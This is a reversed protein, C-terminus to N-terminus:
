DTKAGRSAALLGGGATVLFGALVLNMLVDDAGAAFTYVAIFLAAAFLFYAVGRILPSPVTKEAMKREVEM